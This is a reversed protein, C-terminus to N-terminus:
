RRNADLVGFWVVYATGPRLSGLVLVQPRDLPQVTVTLDRQPEGDAFVTVLFPEQKGPGGDYLVRASTPQVTGVVLLLQPAQFPELTSEGKVGLGSAVLACAAVLRMVVPCNM